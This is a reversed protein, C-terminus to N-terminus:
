TMERLNLILRAIHHCAGSFGADIEDEEVGLARLIGTPPRMQLTHQSGAAQQHHVIRGRMRLLNRRENGEDLAVGVERCAQRRDAVPFKKCDLRRPSSVASHDAFRMADDSQRMRDPVGM